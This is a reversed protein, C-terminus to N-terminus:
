KLNGAGLRVCRSYDYSYVYEKDQTCQYKKGVEFAVFHTAFVVGLIMLGVVIKDIM